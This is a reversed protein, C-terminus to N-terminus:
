LLPPLQHILQLSGEQRQWCLHQQGNSIMLLHAPVKSLYSLAQQLVKDNLAIDPAKCEILLWPEHQRNFVVIDFRRKRDSVVIMKELAILATPIHQVQILWQLLNQRVWEEPTLVLWKKRLPDFIERVEATERLRFSPEPFDIQIM